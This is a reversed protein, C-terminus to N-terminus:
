CAPNGNSIFVSYIFSGGSVEKIVFHIVAGPYGSPMADVVHWEGAIYGVNDTWTPLLVSIAQTTFPPLTVRLATQNHSVM